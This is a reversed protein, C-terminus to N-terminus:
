QAPVYTPDQTVQDIVSGYASVKGSGDIVKVTVRANYIDGPLGFSALGIQRFENAGLAIQVKPTVTSDPLIVSMEVTAPSGTTEAVGVNTRMRTSQEVQLIQLAREGGGVAEAPTVGPIFQGYTGSPTQNYTRASTVLSSLAPTTVVLSGGSNTVGFQAQLVNDIAKVAGPAITFTAATAAPPSGAQPSYSMTATVPSSGSNFLRVDTRWNAIGTNLDAVGPIVYRTSSASSKLVPSVLLPDNTQNDVTSAYATVKGSGSTVSVEIRGDALSINNAALIQNIQLHEGALLAQPIQGVVNGDNDFVKLLVTAPQGSGEVLGFNTRYASSQAIQQLSLVFQQSATSQGIFQSFPIAPIFQGFTGNPTTNFTRSSAITTLSTGLSTTTAPSFASAATTSTVPRLELTGAASTSAGFFSALIDDLALTAGPDIQISASSGSQTGDTSTPTFNVTYKMTQASTNTVRVDSEFQSDNAGPAHAVVPIILSDPPPSNKPVPAVPTVISVSVPLTTTTIGLSQAPGPSSYTVQVSGTSTGLRLTSPDSTVTLTAGQAGVTGSAPTVTIWPRDAKATFSVPPNAPPLTLTQVVAGQSGAEASVQKQTTLKQPIVLVPVVDSFIGRDDSCSSIARVRYLYRLPASTSHTFSASTGVVVQITANTFDAATSEQLEYKDSNPVASWRVKYSSGSVAQGIVRATPKAPAACAPAARLVRITSVASRISPCSDFVAEVQWGIAGSPVAVAAETSTTTALLSGGNDDVTWVKYQKATPVATWSFTVPSVVTERDVPGLVVPRSKPCDSVPITFTSHKSEVPPCSSGFTVVWWEIKGEPLHRTYQSLTTSTVPTAAGDNTKVFLVYGAANNVDTWDFRVPQPPNSSGDAPSLLQAADNPCNAARPVAFKAWNSKTSACGKFTAEVRWRVSGPPLPRALSTDDSTGILVVDSNDLTAYVRYTEVNDVASWVMTVPSTIKQAGDPPSMIVPSDATCKPVDVTFFAKSSLVTPCSEFFSEVYWTYTAPDLDRTLSTGTTVGIDDFPQGAPAIWVHYGIANPAASWKFTVTQLTTAPQSSTGAPSVLTAPQNADCTSKKTVTFKGHPSLVSPCAGFLAEVYWDVSGSSVATTATTGPVRAAINPSGGDVSTWLRYATANPVSSWSFSVPSAVTAGNAPAILNLNGGPCSQPQQVAFTFTSSRQNSCGQFSTDVYWSITGAAVARLLDSGTTSGLSEFPSGNVSVYLTYLTAGPVASWIFDVPSKVGTANNPPAVLTAPSNSCATGTAVTFTARKSTTQACGGGFDAVVDWTFTGVPLPATMQTVQTSGVVFSTGGNPTAVVKYMSAGPVASWQFTVPSALGAAGDAPAIIQPAPPSDPCGASAVTTFHFHTSFTSPCGAYTTEVYWEASGNPVSMTFQSDPTTAVPAATSGNLSLYLRYGTAGAVDNWDFVVPSKVSTANDAPSVLTTSLTPCGGASVTLTFHDSDVPACNDFYTRVWWQSTGQPISSTLLKSSTGTTGALVPSSSGAPLVFVSYGSAGAVDAWDFLLPVTVTANNAPAQLTAKTQPCQTNVVAFSSPKSIQSSCPPTFNARVVWIYAGPDLKVSATAASGDVSTKTSFTAGNDSSVIVDYGTAGTVKSWSFSVPQSADVSAGGSPGLISPATQPCQARTSVPFLIAFFTAAAFFRSTRSRMAESTVSRRPRAPTTAETSRDRLGTM